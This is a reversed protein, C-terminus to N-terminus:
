KNAGKTLYIIDALEAKAEEIVGPLEEPMMKGAVWMDLYSLLCEARNIYEEDDM